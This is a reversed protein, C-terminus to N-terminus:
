PFIMKVMVGATAVGIASLIGIILNLKVEIKAYAVDIANLRTECQDVRSEIENLKECGRCDITQLNEPM